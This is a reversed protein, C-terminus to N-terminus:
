KGDPLDALLLHGFIGSFVRDSPVPAERKGYYYLESFDAFYSGRRSNCVRQLDNEYM